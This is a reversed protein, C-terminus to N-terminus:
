FSQQEQRKIKVSPATLLKKTCSVLLLIYFIARVPLYAANVGTVTEVAEPIEMTEGHFDCGVSVRTNRNM